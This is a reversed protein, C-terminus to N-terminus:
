RFACQWECKCILCTQMGLASVHSNIKFTLGSNPPGFFYNQVDSLLYHEQRIYFSTHKGIWAL